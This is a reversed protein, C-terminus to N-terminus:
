LVVGLESESCSAPQVPLPRASWSMRGAAFSGVTGTARSAIVKEGLEGVTTASPILGV